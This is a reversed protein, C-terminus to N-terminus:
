FCCLWKDSHNGFYTQSWNTREKISEPHKRLGHHHALAPCSFLPHQALHSKTRQLCQHDIRLWMAIRERFRVSVTEKVDITSEADLDSKNELSFTWWYKSCAVPDRTTGKGLTRTRSTSNKRLLKWRWPPMRKSPIKSNRLRPEM